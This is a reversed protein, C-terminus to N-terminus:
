PSEDDHIREVAFPKDDTTGAQVCRLRMYSPITRSTTYVIDGVNYYKSMRRALLIYEDPYFDVPKGLDFSFAFHNDKIIIGQEDDSDIDQMFFVKTEGFEYDTRKQANRHAYTPNSAATRIEEHSYNWDHIDTKTLEIDSGDSNAVILWEKPLDKGAKTIRNMFATYNHIFEDTADEKIYPFDIYGTEPDVSPAAINKNSLKIM